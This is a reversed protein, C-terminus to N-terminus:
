KQKEKNRETNAMLYILITLKKVPWESLDFYNYIVTSHRLHEQQAEIVNRSRTHPISFRSLTFNKM